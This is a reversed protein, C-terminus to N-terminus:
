RASGGQRVSADACLLHHNVIVIQAEAARERMRTVFCDAYHPCERGLCQESTATLETWLPSTTPCITSRPAIAPRPPASGLRRHAALWRREDPPLGAAAEQLRDFRHLCLYNTRGKM